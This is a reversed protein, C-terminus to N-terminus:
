NVIYYITNADYDPSLNDYEVQTLKVIKMGGMQSYVAGGQVPNTDGSAVQSSTNASIAYTVGNVQIDSIINPM